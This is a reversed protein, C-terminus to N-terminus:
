ARASGLAHQAKRAYYAAGLREFIDLARRLYDARKADDADLHRGIEYHALAEDLPMALKQALALSKEWAARAKDPKGDLWYFLGQYCNAAPRGIPFTRGWGNMIKCASQAAARLEQPSVVPANDEWLTLYTQPLAIYWILSFPLTPTVSAALKRGAEVDAWAEAYEKQRTHVLAPLSHRGISEGPSLQLEVDQACRGLRAAEDLDGETAAIFTQRVYTFIEIQQDEQRATRELAELNKAKAEQFLGIDMMLQLELTFNELWRRWDGLEQGIAAGRQFRARAEDWRGVGSLYFGGIEEVWATASPDHVQAAVRDAYRMYGDAVSYLGAIGFTGGMVAYARALEGTPPLSEVLNLMKLAMVIDLILDNFLVAIQAIREFARVVELRQPVDNSARALFLKPAARHAGQRVANGLISIVQRPRKSPASHGLLLATQKIHAMGEPLHGLAYHAEGLQREWKARRFADLGKGTELARELFSIAKRHAGIRYAQEGAIGAYHAEKAADGLAQWHYALSAAHEPADSYLKEMATAVQRHLAQRESPTLNALLGERLKDHAFRWRDGQVELIAADACTSLWLDLATQFPSTGRKTQGPTQTNQYILKLVELDLQRGSVTAARLLPRANEPVQSLRREVVTQMGGSFVKEPLAVQGVQALQGAEEALARVVEVIFFVNGETERALLDVVAQQRGVQEGLMSASLEGITDKSLRELRILQMLPLQDRLEPQEDDRYTAVLIVPMTRINASFRKLLTVSEGTAWHIDELIIVLPEKQRELIGGIVQVLRERIAESEVGPPDAVPRNLLAAIDPVLTKLISAEFRTLDTQLCLERLVDRWAQYPQGGESVAQGRLVRMGKVLALTRLEDLLRSKGVGSEGGVLWASGLPKQDAPASPAPLPLAHRAGVSAIQNLASSLKAMEAQRGVFRAAQLFSERITASELELPKQSAEAYANIAEQATQYRDEPNKALLRVLVAALPPELELPAFDPSTNLIDNVLNASGAFPHRGAIVEYAIVGVAYLDSQASVPEGKLVEPATYTLTGTFNEDKEDMHERVVALGFDLVKVQGAVVLINAPKLDHHIVDRRHLYTLAQLVQILLEFQADVPRARSADLITQAHELLEMTFYPQREADFGYDLVSIINPHRLTALTKFEQALAMRFDTSDGSSGPEGGILVRKLAITQGSLRDQARYVVGMGGRDIETQLQYRKGITDV